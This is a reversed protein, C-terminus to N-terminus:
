QAPAATRGFLVDLEEPTVVRWDGEELDDPLKLGGISIRKLALVHNGAAAFMRRVQHYRGEHLTILAEKEGLVELEAPLLPKGENRLTLNGSAFLEAEHGELPRDLTVHYVKGLNYKPHIIRHLLPGDDTMLLMGTTDKDLRGVSSLTPNRHEFRPPLLDYVTVDPDDKSCTYGDPKNVIITLPGIQDLPEGKFLIRDHPPLDREGLVNGDTDTVAGAKLFREVERRSGYGLNALLKVLKM